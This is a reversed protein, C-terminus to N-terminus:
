LSYGHSLDPISYNEFDDNTAPAEGDLHAAYLSQHVGNCCRCTLWVRDRALTTSHSQPESSQHLTHFKAQLTDTESIYKIFVQHIQLLHIQRSQLRYLVRGYVYCHSAHSTGATVKVDARALPPGAVRKHLQIRADTKVMPVASDSLSIQEDKGFEPIPLWRSIRYNSLTESYM